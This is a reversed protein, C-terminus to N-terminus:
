QGNAEELSLSGTIFPKFGISRVATESKLRFDLELPNLFLPDVFLSHTDFGKEHADSFSIRKNSRSLIGWDGKEGSTDWFINIDSILGGTDQCGYGFVFFPKRSTLLINREFTLSNHSEKKSLAIIGEEGFAFINNRVINERGYHQHFIQSNTFACLNNEVLIHSSGEDLYIGWAGYEAKNLNYIINGRIVTGPQVGLTYIGGMDSLLNKGIDHILNNEIINNKSINEGYGWVWGCSIGSYYLDHIHNNSLINNTAHMLLIGVASYFVNGCDYIHNNEVTISNTRMCLPSMADGGNIKIGGAGMDYISNGTIRIDSCGESIEIGYWGCHRIECNEFKCNRAGRIFVVGPVKYAAQASSAMKEDVQVWDTHEITIGKFILNEVFRSKEVIGEIRIAQTLYPAYVELNDITEGEKFIYYLLGSHRDLYWQGPEKLAEFINEVRYRTNKELAMVSKRFSVVLDTEENVQSIPMREEIWKHFVIIEIDSLNRWKKIDGKNFYFSNSGDFLGGPKEPTDKIKFFEHEPLITRRKREGNVFLQRFYWKGNKVDPIEVVYGNVGNIITKKWGSIKRGCDLIVNEGEYNSYTVNSDDPTFIITKSISYRGKRIFVNIPETVNLSLRIARIKDRAAEITALPGDNGDPVPAPYLGSWNDNGCTSVYISSIKKDMTFGTIQCIGAFILVVLFKKM